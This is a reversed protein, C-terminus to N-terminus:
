REGRWATYDAFGTSGDPKESNQVARVQEGITGRPSQWRRLHGVDQKNTTRAHIRFVRVVRRRGGLRLPIRRLWRRLWRRM